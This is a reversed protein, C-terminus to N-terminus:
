RELRVQNPQSIPRHVCACRMCACQSTHKWQIIQEFLDPMNEQNRLYKSIESGVWNSQSIPRHVGSFLKCARQCPHMSAHVHVSMFTMVLMDGRNWIYRQGGFRVWIPQTILIKIKNHVLPCFVSSVLMVYIIHTLLICFEWSGISSIGLVGIDERNEPLLIPNCETVFCGM